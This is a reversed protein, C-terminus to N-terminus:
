LFVSEEVRYVACGTQEESGLAYVPGTRGHERTEEAEDQQGGNTERGDRRRQGQRLIRVGAKGGAATTVALMVAGHHHPSHRLESTLTGLRLYACDAGVIGSM